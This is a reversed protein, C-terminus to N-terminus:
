VEFGPFALRSPIACLLGCSREGDREIINSPNSGLAPEMESSFARRHYNASARARVGARFYEFECAPDGFRLDVDVTRAGRAM